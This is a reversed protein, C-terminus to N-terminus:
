PITIKKWRFPIPRKYMYPKVYSPITGRKSAASTKAWSYGRLKELEDNDYNLTCSRNRSIGPALYAPWGCDRRSTKKFRNTRSKRRTSKRTKRRKTYRRKSSVRKKTVM